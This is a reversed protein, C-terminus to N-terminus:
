LIQNTSQYEGSFLLHVSEVKNFAALMASTAAFLQDWDAVEEDKPIWIDLALEKLNKLPRLLDAKPAELSAM